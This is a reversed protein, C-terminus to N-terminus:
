MVIYPKGDPMEGADLAGVISPHNMRSLAEVEQKFKRISWENEAEKDRMVKIVVKRSVMRTDSALYAAGFGGQGLKREIVYRGELVVDILDDKPPSSAHSIVTDAGGLIDDPNEM